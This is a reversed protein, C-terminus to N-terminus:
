APSQFIASIIEVREPNKRIIKPKKNTNNIGPNAIENTKKGLIVSIGGRVLSTNDQTILIPDVNHAIRKRSRNRPTLVVPTLQAIAM